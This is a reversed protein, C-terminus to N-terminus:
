IITMFLSTQFQTNTKLPQFYSILEDRETQRTQQTSDRQLMELQIPYKSILEFFKPGRENSAHDGTNISHRANFDAVMIVDDQWVNSSEELSELFLEIDSFSESPAFYGFGIILDDTQLIQWNHGSKILHTQTLKGSPSFALLGGLHTKAPINVITNHFPSSQLEQLRSEAIIALDIEHTKTFLNIEQTKHTISRANFFM